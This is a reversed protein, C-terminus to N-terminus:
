IRVDEGRVNRRVRVVDREDAAIIAVDYQKLFGAL